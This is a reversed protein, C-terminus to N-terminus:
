GESSEYPGVEAWTLSGAVAFLQYPSLIGSLSRVIKEKTSQKPWLNVIARGLM